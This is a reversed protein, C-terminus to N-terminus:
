SDDDSLMAYIRGVVDKVSEPTPINDEVAISVMHSRETKDNLSRLFFWRRFCTVISYVKALGKTEAFVESGAYARGLARRLNYKADVVCVFKDGRELM